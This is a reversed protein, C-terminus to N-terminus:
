QEAHSWTNYARRHGASEVLVCVDRAHSARRHGNEGCGRLRLRGVCGPNPRPARAQPLTPEPHATHITLHSAQTDPSQPEAHHAPALISIQQTNKNSSEGSCRSSWAAVRDISSDHPRGGAKRDLGRVAWRGCRRMSQGARASRRGHRTHAHPNSTREDDALTDHMGGGGDRFGGGKHPTPVSGGHAPGPGKSEM